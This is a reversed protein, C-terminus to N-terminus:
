ADGRASSRRATPSSAPVAHSAWVDARATLARAVIADLPARHSTISAFENETTDREGTGGAM